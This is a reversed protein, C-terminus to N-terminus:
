ERNRGEGPDGPVDAAGGAEDPLKRWLWWFGGSLIAVYLAFSAHPPLGLVHQGISYSFEGKLFLPIHLNTLPNGIEFPPCASTATALVTIGISYVALLTGIRPFRQLGLACPLALLPLMPALYRPGLTPGAPWDWVRGSIVTIQLLPVAYCLWLWRSPKQFMSFYGVGVLLLFPSWFFLGRETSFLLNFATTADPWKIAYLGQKM